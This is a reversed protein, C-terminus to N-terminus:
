YRQCVSIFAYPGGVLWTRYHLHFFDVQLKNDGIQYEQLITYFLADPISDNIMSVTKVITAQFTKGQKERIDKLLVSRRVQYSVNDIVANGNMLFYGSSDDYLRLDHTVNLRLTEKKYQLIYQTSYICKFPLKISQHQRSSFYFLVSLMIFLSTFVTFIKVKM